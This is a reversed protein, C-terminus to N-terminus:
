GTGKPHERRYIGENDVVLPIAGKRDEKPPPDLPNYTVRTGEHGAEVTKSNGGNGARSGLKGTTGAWEEAATKLNM